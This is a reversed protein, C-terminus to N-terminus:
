LYMEKLEEFTINIGVQKLLDKRKIYLKELLTEYDRGYHIQNHCNSCLSVINEEVDLSVDFRGSYQMPVLHHPEVYNCNNKRRIFSPHSKNIECFFKAYALANAATRGSRPYVEINRRIVPTGKEKAKGEYEFDLNRAEEESLDALKKLLQEDAAMEEIYVDRVPQVPFVWVKRNNRNKDLQEEQYPEGVLKVIGGYVYVNKEFVEFLHVTYGNTNSEALIQNANGKLVQNGEQGMGTYHLISDKWKDSYIGKTHNSIIVLTQYKKTPLMGGANRCQFIRRLKEFTLKDGIQLNPDFRM